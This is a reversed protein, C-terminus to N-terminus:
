FKIINEDLFACPHDFDDVKAERHDDCIVLPKLNEASRWAVHGGFNYTLVFVIALWHIHPREAHEEVNHKRSSERESTDGLLVQILLDLAALVSCVM